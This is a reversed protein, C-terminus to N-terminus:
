KSSVFVEGIFGVRQLGFHPPLLRIRGAVFGIFTGEFEAVVVVAFRGLSSRIGSVWASFADSPPVISMGHAKQHEYLAGWLMELRDLEDAAALRVVAGTTTM